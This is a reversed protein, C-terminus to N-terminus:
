KGTGIVRENARILDSVLENIMLNDGVAIAVIRFGNKVLVYNILAPDLTIDRHKSIFM